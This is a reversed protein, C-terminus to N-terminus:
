DEKAPKLFLAIIAGIIAVIVLISFSIQYGSVKVAKSCTAVGAMQVLSSVGIVLGGLSGTINEPYHKAIYGLAQPGIFASFFVTAYISLQLITNNSGMAPVKILYIFVAAPIFGALVVPRANGKLFKETIIVNQLRFL